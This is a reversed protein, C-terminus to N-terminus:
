LRGQLVLALTSLPDLLPPAQATHFHWWDSTASMEPHNIIEDLACCLSDQTLTLSRLHRASYAFQTRPPAVENNCTNCNADQWHSPCAPGWLWDKRGVKRKQHPRQRKSIDSYPFPLCFLFLSSPFTFLSFSFFLTFVSDSPGPSAFQKSKEIDLSVPALLPSPSSQLESSLFHTQTSSLVTM